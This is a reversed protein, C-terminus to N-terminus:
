QLWFGIGYGPALFTAAWILSSVASAGLFLAWPMDLMGAVLPLFPRLAGVFKGGIISLM